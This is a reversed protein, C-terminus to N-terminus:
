LLSLQPEDPDRINYVERAKAITGSGQFLPPTQIHNIAEWAGWIKLGASQYSLSPRDPGGSGGFIGLRGQLAEQLEATTMGSEFRNGQRTHLSATALRFMETKDAETDPRPPKM